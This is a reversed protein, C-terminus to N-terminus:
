SRAALGCCISYSALADEDEVALVELQAGRGDLDDPRQADDSISHLMCYASWGCLSCHQMMSTMARRDREEARAELAVPYGSAYRAVLTRRGREKRREM